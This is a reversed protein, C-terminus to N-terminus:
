NKSPKQQHSPQSSGLISSNFQPVSKKKAAEKANERRIEERMRQEETDISRQGRLSLALYRNHRLPSTM